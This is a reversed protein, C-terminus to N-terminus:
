ENGTTNQYDLVAMTYQISHISGNLRAKFEEDLLNLYDNMKLVGERYQCEASERIQQRLGIIEEDRSLVDAAKHVEGMKQEAEVSTNLLFSKRALDIRSEELQFKHRDNKLTYLSSINWQLKLGAVFYPDFSGSLMNLGPRGCGAQLTLNLRPQVATALQEKQLELQKLQMEYLKIEPRKCNQADFAEAEVEPECFVAKSLDCGTFMGLMRVYAKRDTHLSVDQQECTLISVRLQDKDSALSVGAEQLAELEALSRRLNDSLLANLEIQKDLLVIALYINQVRARISYLNVDLQSKKVEGGVEALKRKMSAAGGDWLPQTVDLTLGYQDHPIDFNMGMVDFPMEVVASQWTAKGSINLQPAWALSANRIDYQSSAEILSYEEIQPHNEYAMRICDDLSTQAFGLAPLACLVLTLLSRKM